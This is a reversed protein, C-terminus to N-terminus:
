PIGIVKHIQLGLKWQPHSRCYEVALRMNEQLHPGAM